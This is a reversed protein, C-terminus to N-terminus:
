GSKLTYQFLQERVVGKYQEGIPIEQKGLYIHKASVATIANVQVAFSRHVRIFYGPPLQDLLNVLTISYVYNKKETIVRCYRRDAELYRIQDISLRHFRTGERIFVAQESWLPEKTKTKPTQSRAARNLIGLTLQVQLLRAPRLLIASPYNILVPLATALQEEAVVLIPKQLTRTLGIFSHLTQEIPEETTWLDWIIADIPPLANERYPDLMQISYGQARLDKYLGLNTAHNTMFGLKITPQEPTTLAPM